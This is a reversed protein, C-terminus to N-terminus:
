RTLISVFYPFPIRIAALIYGITGEAVGRGEFFKM